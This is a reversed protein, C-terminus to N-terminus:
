TAYEKIFQHYIKSGDRKQHVVHFIRKLPHGEYPESLSDIEESLRHVTTLAGYKHGYIQPTNFVITDEPTNKMIAQAEQLSIEEELIKEKGQLFDSLASLAGM